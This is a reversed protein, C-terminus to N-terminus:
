MQPVDNITRTMPMIQINFSLLLLSIATIHEWCYATSSLCAAANQM